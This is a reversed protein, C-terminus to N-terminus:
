SPARTIESESDTPTHTLIVTEGDDDYYNVAGTSKTQVAKNVVVKGAKDLHVDALASDVEANIDAATIPAAHNVLVSDVAGDDYIDASVDVSTDNANSSHVVLHITEGNRILISPSVLMAEVATSVSKAWVSPCIVFGAAAMSTLKWRITLDAAASNDLPNGGDDGVFIRFKVDVDRGLTNEWAGVIGGNGKQLNLGTDSITTIYQAM